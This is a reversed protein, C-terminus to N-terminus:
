IKQFKSPGIHNTNPGGFKSLDLKKKNIVEFFFKFYPQNIYLFTESHPGKPSKVERLKGVEPIEFKSPGWLPV